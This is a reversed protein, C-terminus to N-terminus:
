PVAIQEPPQKVRENDGLEAGLERARGRSRAEVVHALLLAPELDIEKGLESAAAQDPNLDLGIGGRGAVARPVKGGKPIPVGVREHGPDHEVRTRARVAQAIPEEGGRDRGQPASRWASRAADLLQAGYGASRGPLRSRWRCDPRSM